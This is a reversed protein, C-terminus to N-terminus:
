CSRPALAAEYADLWREFRDRSTTLADARRRGRRHVALVAEALAQPDGVPVPLIDMGEARMRDVSADFRTVVMPTGLAEAELLVNPHGEWASCLILCEAQRIWPYPNAQCGAFLVDDIIGLSRVLQQLSEREPGDGVLVLKLESQAAVAQWAHIATEIRKCAVMRGVIVAFPSSPLGAVLPPQMASLRLLQDPDVANAIVMIQKDPLALAAQMQNRIEPGLVVLRDCFRYLMRMMLRRAGTQVNDMCNAERLILRGTPAGFLKAAVACLNAGTVTSLLADPRTRRLHRWLAVTGFAAMRLGPRMRQRSLTTRQVDPMLESELVGGPILTILDVQHGRGVLGNALGVFRREAGGIDLSPILLAIKM